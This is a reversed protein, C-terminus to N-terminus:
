QLFDSGLDPGTFNPFQHGIRTLLVVTSLGQM